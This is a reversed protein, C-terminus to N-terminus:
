LIELGTARAIRMDGSSSVSSGHSSFYPLSRFRSTVLGYLRKEARGSRYMDSDLQLGVTDVRRCPRHGCGLFRRPPLAPLLTSRADGGDLDGLVKPGVSGERFAYIMYDCVYTCTSDLIPFYFSPWGQNVGDHGKSIDWFLQHKWSM